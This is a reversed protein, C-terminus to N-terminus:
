RTDAQDDPGDDDDTADDSEAGSDAAPDAEADRRALEARLRNLARHQTVRVAGPTSGVIAATEEASLGVAGRLVLVEGQRPTLLDRLHGRP